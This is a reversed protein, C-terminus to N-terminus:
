SFRSLISTKELRCDADCLIATRRGRSRCNVWQVITTLKIFTTTSASWTIVSTARKRTSSESLAHYPGDSLVTTYGGRRPIPVKAKISSSPVGWTAALFNAAKVTIYHTVDRLIAPGGLPLCRATATASLSSADLISYRSDAIRQRFALLFLTLNSASRAVRRVSDDRDGTTTLPGRRKM